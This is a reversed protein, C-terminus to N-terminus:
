TEPVVKTPTTERIFLLADYSEILTLAVAFQDDHAPNFVAGVSLASHPDSLWETAPSAPDLDHLDLIFAEVALREFTASYSGQPASEITQAEVPMAVQEGSPTTPATRATFGGKAFDFGVAVYSEGLAERLHAGMPTGAAEGLRTLIVHQNHAWVAVREDGAGQDLLWLTNEAMYDDRLAVARSVNRRATRVTSTQIVIRAAQMVEDFAEPSSSAVYRERRDALLEYAAEADIQAQPWTSEDDSTAYAYLPEFEALAPPDVGTVFDLVFRTGAEVSLQPDVGHLRVRMAPDVTTNHRRLWALMELTEETKWTWAYPSTIVAELEVDGQIYDDYTKAMSWPLEVALHTFDLQEVLYRMLRHKLTFFEHTGHTAEGLGVIRARSLLPALADLDQHVDTPELGELPKILSGLGDLLPDGTPALSVPTAAASTPVASVGDSATGSCAAVSLAMPVLAVSLTRRRPHAGSVHQAVGTTHRTPRSTAKLGM